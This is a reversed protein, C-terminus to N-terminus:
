KHKDNYQKLLNCLNVLFLINDCEDILKKIKEKLEDLEM